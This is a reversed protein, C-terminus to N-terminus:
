NSTSRIGLTNLIASRQAPDAVIEEMLEPWPLRARRVVDQLTYALPSHPETRRFFQAIEDLLRLADDRTALRPPLGIGAGGSEGVPNSRQEAIAPSEAVREAPDPPAFRSCIDIIQLLLDRVRSTPPSSRQARQELREALVDWAALAGTADARLQRFHAQGTAQAEQEIDALLLAGADLRQKRRGSDGIGAVEIAQEYQWFALAAGNPRSFLPVKRLPQILTGDTGEGNLGAIPAVRTAIGEEDPFPYVDDWYLEVLDALLQFGLRLGPLTDSRLLAETFWAALELDKSQEAIAQAALSRVVRWQVPMAVELSTDADAAREAARAEARADRLQYYVSQPSFDQRLDVGTAREGAIPSLLSQLSFEDSLNPM